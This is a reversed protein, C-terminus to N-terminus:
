EVWISAYTTANESGSPIQVNAKSVTVVGDSATVGTVVYGTGSSTVNAGDGSSKLKDQKNNSLTSIEDSLTDASDEILEVTTKISPYKTTSTYDATALNSMNAVKNASAEAGSIKSVAIAANDSIDANVITGDTIDSSAVASKTALSGLGSVKSSAITTSVEVAGTSANTTLIGGKTTQTKDVKGN